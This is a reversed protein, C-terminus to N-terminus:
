IKAAILGTHFANIPQFVLQSAYEDIDLQLAQVVTPTIWGACVTDRPFNAKDMVIVDLGHRHLQWACSSGAPGGGVILAVCSEM